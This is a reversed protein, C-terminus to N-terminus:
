ISDQNKMWLLVTNKIEYSRQLEAFLIVDYPM